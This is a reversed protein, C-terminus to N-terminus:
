GKRSATVSNCVGTCLIDGSGHASSYEIIQKELAEIQKQIAEANSGRPIQKFKLLAKLADISRYMGVREYFIHTQLNWEIIGTVGQPSYLRDAPMQEHAPKNIYEEMHGKLVIPAAKALLNLAPQTGNFQELKSLYAVTAIANRTRLKMAKQMVVQTDAKRGEVVGTNLTEM